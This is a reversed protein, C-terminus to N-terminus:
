KTERTLKEQYQDANLLATKEVSNNLEIILLWGEHYPDTNIMEPQDVVQKNVRKVMGSVPAFIDSVAKVSEVVGIAAGKEVIKGEAPLEVYVIDGLSGQAYDTIGIKGENDTVKVWEHEATYLYDRPVEKKM